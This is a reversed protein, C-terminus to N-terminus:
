GSKLGLQCLASGALTRLPELMEEDELLAEFARRLALDSQRTIRMNFHVLAAAITAAYMRAALRRDNSTEGVVRMTKFADKAQMLQDVSITRDTLLDVVTQHRSDIDRAIWDAAAMAPDLQSELAWRLTDSLLENTPKIM